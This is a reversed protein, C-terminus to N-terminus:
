RLASCICTRYLILISLNSDEDHVVFPYRFLFRLHVVVDKLPGHVCYREPYDCGLLICLDIFQTVDM